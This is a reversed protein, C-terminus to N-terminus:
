LVRKKRSSPKKRKPPQNKLQAKIGLQLGEGFEDWFESEVMSVGKAELKALERIKEPLHMYIYLAGAAEEEMSGSNPDDCFNSFKDKLGPPLRWGIQIKGNEDM